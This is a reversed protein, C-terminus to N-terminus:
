FNKYRAGSLDVGGQSGGGGAVGTQAGTGTYLQCIVMMHTDQFLQGADTTFVMQSAAHNWGVWYYTSATLGAQSGAPVNFTHQGLIPPGKASSFVDGLIQQAEANKDQIFGQPWSVTHTGGTWTFVLNNTTPRAHHYDLQGVQYKINELTSQLTSVTKHLNDLRDIQRNIQALDLNAIRPM